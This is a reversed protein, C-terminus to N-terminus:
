TTGTGQHSCGERTTAASGSNRSCFGLYHAQSTFCYASVASLKLIQMEYTCKLVEELHNLHDQWTKSFIMIDDLYNLASVRYM